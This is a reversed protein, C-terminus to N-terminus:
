FPRVDVLTGKKLKNLGIPFAALGDANQYAHLHASGHYNLPEAQMEDTIRVPFLLMRESRGRKFDASIPLKVLKQKGSQGMLKGILPKVLLLFQVISSVPNGSLGFIFTNGLSAFLVPKGPQIALREFHIRAGLKKLVEGSFDLEGVSAGGTIIVIDSEEIGGKVIQFIAELDDEVQGANISEAGTQNALAVLQSTNSNRIKPPLPKQDPPVLESGTSIISIVPKKAVVPNVVGVSALLGIHAPNIRINRKLLLSGSKLDEGKNLINRKSDKNNILIWDDELITVDEQMVVMDAGDPVMAGTMIRSCNSVTVEKTPQTGAPIFEIVKLKQQIDEERIAYGDMASKRFSPFDTDSYIDEALVRDLAKDLGVRETKPKSIPISNIIKLAEELKLM